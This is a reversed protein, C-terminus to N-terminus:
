FVGLQPLFLDRAPYPGFALPKPVGLFFRFNPLPADAVQVFLAVPQYVHGGVPIHGFVVYPGPQGLQVFLLCVGLLFEGM